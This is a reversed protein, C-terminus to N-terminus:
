RGQVLLVGFDTTRESLTKVFKRGWDEFRCEVGVNLHERHDALIVSRVKSLVCGHGLILRRQPNTQTYKHLFETTIFTTPTLPDVKRSCNYGIRVTDFKEDPLYLIRQIALAVTDDSAWYITLSKQTFHIDTTAKRFKSGYPVSKPLINCLIIFCQRGDLHTSRM